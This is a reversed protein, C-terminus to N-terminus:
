RLEHLSELVRLEKLSPIRLGVQILNFLAAQFCCWFMHRAAIKKL